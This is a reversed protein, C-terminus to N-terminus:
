ILREIDEVDLYIDRNGIIYEKNKNLIERFHWNLPIYNQGLKVAVENIPIAAFKESWNVGKMKEAIENKTFIKAYNLEETYEKSEQKWWTLVKRTLTRPVNLVFYGDMDKYESLFSENPYIKSYVKDFDSRNIENDFTINKMESISTLFEDINRQINEIKRLEKITEVKNLEDLNSLSRDVEKYKEQWYKIYKNRGLIDFIGTDKHVLPLIRKNYNEDRIFETVEFMCNISKLYQESIIMLCYDSKRIRKMFEKISQKYDVERVDRELKIKKTKFLIDLADAINSNAWSYSLFIKMPVDAASQQGSKQEEIKYLRVTHQYRHGHRSTVEELGRGKLFAIYLDSALAERIRFPVHHPEGAPVLSVGAEAAAQSAEPMALMSFALYAEKSYKLGNRVVHELLDTGAVAQTLYVNRSEDPVPLYPPNCVLLDMPPSSRWFASGPNWYTNLGLVPLVKTRSSAYEQRRANYWLFLLPTLLWETLCVRSVSPNHHAIWMGLFGTGAGVDLVKRVKKTHLGLRRLDDVFHFTDISPPWFEDTDYWLVEVGDYHIGVLTKAFAKAIKNGLEQSHIPCIARHIREDCSQENCDWLLEPADVTLIEDALHFHIARLDPSVYARLNPSISEAADAFPPNKTNSIIADLSSKECSLSGNITRNYQKLIDSEDLTHTIARVFRLIEKDVQQCLTLTERFTPTRAAMVKKFLGYIGPGHDGLAAQLFDQLATSDWDLKFSSM